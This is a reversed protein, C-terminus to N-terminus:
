HYTGITFVGDTGTQTNSADNGNRYIFNGNELMVTSYTLNPVNTTRGVGRATFTLEGSNGHIEYSNVVYRVGPVATDLQILNGSNDLQINYVTSGSWVQSWTGGSNKSVYVEGYGNEYAWTLGDGSMAFMEPRDLARGNDVWNTIQNWSLGSTTTYYYDLGSFGASAIARTGNNSVTFVGYSDATINIENWTLGYDNSRYTKNIDGTASPNYNVTSTYVVGLNSIFTGNISWMGTTPIGTSTAWSYGGDTSVHATSVGGTETWYIVNAGNPSVALGFKSTASYDVIRSFSNGGNSSKYIAGGNETVFINQGNESTQNKNWTPNYWAENSSSVSPTNYTWGHIEVTYTVPASEGNVNVAKVTFTFTGLETPTGSLSNWYGTNVLTTGTPLSGSVLEIAPQPSGEADIDADYYTETFGNPLEVTNISPASSVPPEWSYPHNNPDTEYTLAGGLYNIVVRWAGKGQKSGNGDDERYHEIDQAYNYQQLLSFSSSSNGAKVPVDEADLVFDSANGTPSYYFDAITNVERQMQRYSGNQFMTYTFMNEYTPYDPYLANDMNWAGNLTLSAAGNTVEAPNVLESGQVNIKLKYGSSTELIAFGGNYYSYYNEWSSFTSLYGYGLSFVGGGPHHVLNLNFGTPNAPDSGWVIEGVETGNANYAKATTIPINNWSRSQFNETPGAQGGNYDTYDSSFQAIIEDITNIQEEDTISYNNWNFNNNGATVPYSDQTMTLEADFEVSTPDPDFDNFDPDDKICQAIDLDDLNTSTTGSGSARFFTKTSSSVAKILFADTPDDCVIAKVGTVGGSLTYKMDGGTPSDPDGDAISGPVGPLINESYDGVSSLVFEETYAINALDTRANNDRANNILGPATVLGAAILIASVAITITQMISNEASDSRLRQLLNM